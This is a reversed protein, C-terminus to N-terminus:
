QLYFLNKSLKKEDTPLSQLYSKYWLKEAKDWIVYQWQANKWYSLLWINQNAMNAADRKAQYDIDYVNKNYSISQWQKSLDYSTSLDTWQNTLATSQRNYQTNISWVVNNKVTNDWNIIWLRNDAWSLTIDRRVNNPNNIYDTINANTLTPDDQQAKNVVEIAKESWITKTLSDILANRNQNIQYEQLQKQQQIRDYNDKMTYAIQDASWKVFSWEATQWISIRNIYNQSAEWWTQKILDKLSNSANMYAVEQSLNLDIHSKIFDDTTNSIALTKDELAYNKNLEIDRISSDYDTKLKKLTLENTQNLFDRQKDVFEKWFTKFYDIIENYLEPYKTIAEQFNVYRKYETQTIRNNYINYENETTNWIASNSLWFEALQTTLDFDSVTMIVTGTPASTNWKNVIYYKPANYSTQSANNPDTLNGFVVVKWDTTRYLTENPISSTMQKYYSKFMNYVENDASTYPYKKNVEAKIQEYTWTPNAKAITNMEWQINWNAM